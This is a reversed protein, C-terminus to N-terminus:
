LKVNYLFVIYPNQLDFVVWSDFVQECEAM